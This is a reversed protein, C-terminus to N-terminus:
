RELGVLELVTRHGQEVREQRVLRGGRDYWVDIARDSVIRYHYVEQTKGLIPKHQTAVYRLRVAPLDRGTDTDLVALPRNRLAPPPLSWYSSLWVEAPVIRERTGVRVRVGHEDAVASVAHRTGNDDTSSAFQRLRGGQWVEQGRYSYSYRVLLIRVQIQTQTRVVTTGGEGKEIAMKMEGADRAGVHVRFTRTERDAAQGPLAGALLAACAGLWALHTPFFPAM